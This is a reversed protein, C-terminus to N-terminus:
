DVAVPGIKPPNVIPGDWGGSFTLGRGAGEDNGSSGVVCVHRPRTELAAIKESTGLFIKIRRHCDSLLATPDSLSHAVAGIQVPM